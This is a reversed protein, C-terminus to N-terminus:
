RVVAVVASKGNAQVVYMGAPLASIPITANVNHWQDYFVGGCADVIRVISPQTVAVHIIDSAPNPSPYSAATANEDVGTPAVYDYAGVDNLSSRQETNCVHKYTQSVVISLTRLIGQEDKVTYMGDSSAKSRAISTSTLAYNFAAADVFSAQAPDKLSINTATDLTVAKGTIFTTTGIILNNVARLTVTNTDIRLVTSASRDSVITNRALYIANYYSPDNMGELGYGIINGNEANAGKHIINGVIYATGGNPLDINRSGTGQENTIRNYLIYNLRARSKYEHGVKTGHSYNGVFYFRSVHNIYIAHSLGDGAGSGDFECNYVRITSKMNDGALIGDQNNRFTCRTVTINTGEVRIGAGNKDPVACNLFTVNDITCSDGKIVWIAKQEAAKGDAYLNVVGKGRITCTNTIWSCVDGHYDGSDIEVTDGDRILKSVASPMTYTRSPGVPWTTALCPIAIFLFLFVRVM